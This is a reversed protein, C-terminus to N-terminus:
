PYSDTSPSCLPGTVTFHCTTEGPDCSSRACTSIFNGATSCHQNFTLNRTKRYQIADIAAEQDEAKHAYDLSSCGGVLFIQDLCSDQTPQNGLIM